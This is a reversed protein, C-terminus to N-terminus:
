EKTFKLAQEFGIIKLVYLGKAMSEVSITNNEGDLTGNKIARGNLDYITFATNPEFAQSSNLTITEKAPIPYIGVTNSTNHNTVSMNINGIYRAIAFDNGSYGVLIIKEDNPQIIM